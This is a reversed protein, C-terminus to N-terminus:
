RRGFLQQRIEGFALTFFGLAVLGVLIGVGALRTDSEGFALKATQSALELNSEAQTGAPPIVAGGGGGPDGGGPTDTAALAVPEEGPLATGEPTIPPGGDTVVPASTDGTDAASGASSSSAGSSARNGSASSPSPTTTSTPASASTGRGGGASASSPRSTETRAKPTTTKTRTQTRADATPQAATTTPANQAAAPTQVTPTSATQTPAPAQTRPTQTAVTTPAATATPTPKPKTKSRVWDDYSSIRAWETWNATKVLKGDGDYYQIQNEEFDYQVYPIPTCAVDDYGPLTDRGDTYTQGDITIEVPFPHSAPNTIQAQAAPALVLTWVAALVATRKM